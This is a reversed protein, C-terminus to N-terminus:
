LPIFILTKALLGALLKQSSLHPLWLANGVTMWNSRTGKLIAPVGSVTKTHAVWHKRKTSRFNDWVSFCTKIVVARRWLSHPVACRMSLSRGVMNASHPSAPCNDFIRFTM